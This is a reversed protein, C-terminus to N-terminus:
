QDDDTRRDDLVAFYEPAFAGLRGLRSPSPLEGASLNLRAFAVDVRQDPFTLFLQADGYRNTVPDASVHRQGM